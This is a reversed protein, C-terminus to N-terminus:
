KRLRRRLCVPPAWAVSGCPEGDRTRVSTRPIRAACLKSGGISKSRSEFLQVRGRLKFSCGLQSLEQLSPEECYNQDIPRFRDPRRWEKKNSRRIVGEHAPPM